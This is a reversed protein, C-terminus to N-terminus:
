QTRFYSTSTERVNLNVETCNAIIWCLSISHSDLRLFFAFESGQFSVNMWLSQEWIKTCSDSSHRQLSASSTWLCKEAQPHFISVGSFLHRYSLARPVTRSTVQFVTNLRQFKHHKAFIGKKCQRHLCFKFSLNGDDTLILQSDLYTSILFLDSSVALGWGLCPCDVSYVWYLLVPAEERYGSFGRPFRSFSSYIGSFPSM